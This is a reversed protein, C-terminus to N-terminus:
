RRALIRRNSSFQETGDDDWYHEDINESFSSFGALFEAIDNEDAFYHIDGPHVSNLSKWTNEAVKEGNGYKADRRTPCTFFFLGGPKLWRYVLGVAEKFTQRSGHYLVNYALILDFSRESFLDESFSGEIIEVPFDKESLQRRLIALAEPSSDVATVKYGDEAFLFVHRGIGCGLDLVNRTVSRDLGNKLQIVASDPERWYDRKAEEEWHSEWNSEM